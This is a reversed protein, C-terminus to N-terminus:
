DEKLFEDIVGFVPHDESYVGMFIERAKKLEKVALDRKDLDNYIVGKYFHLNGNVKPDNQYNSHQDSFFQLLEEVRDVDWYAKMLDQYITPNDPALVFFKKVLTLHDETNMALKLGMLPRLIYYSNPNISDALLYYTLSKSSDKMELHITGLMNAADSRLGPDEYKELAMEASAIAKQQQETYLYAYALNYHGSPYDPDLEISEELYPIAESFNELYLYYYGIGYVSWHDKVEHDYARKYNAFFRNMVERDTELWSGPYKLHVEHYFNGLSKYLSYDEPHKKILTSLVSDPAFAFLQFEGNTGRYDLIDEDIGIDKLAFMQHMISSVFYNLVIETKVVAIEPDQNEPDAKQLLEFASSYKKESILERAEGIEGDQALVLSSAFVLLLTLISKM